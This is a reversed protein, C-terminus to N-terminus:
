MYMCCEVACAYLCQYILCSLKLQLIKKIESERPRLEIIQLGGNTAHVKRALSVALAEVARHLSRQQRAAVSALGDRLAHNGLRRVGVASTVRRAVVGLAARVLLGTVVLGVNEDIVSAAHKIAHLFVTGVVTSNSCHLM